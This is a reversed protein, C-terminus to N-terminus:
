RTALDKWLARVASRSPDDDHHLDYHGSFIVGLKDGKRWIITADFLLGESTLLLGVTTPLLRDGLVRVQAGRVSFNRVICDVPDNGVVIKAAVLTRARYDARREAGSRRDGDMSSSPSHQSPEEFGDHANERIMVSNDTIL